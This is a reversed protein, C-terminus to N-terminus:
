ANGGALATGSRSRERRGRRAGRPAGARSRKVAQSLLLGCLVLVASAALQAYFGNTLTAHAGEFAIGATGTDLGKPLDIALTVAVGTLGALAVLRGLRWRGTYVAIVALVVAVVAVPILLYAHAAGADIRDTQPAPAVGSVGLYQPEGVEVGRYTVFQSVGLCAASCVIVGAIGREPTIVRSLRTAASALIGGLAVLNRGAWLIARPVLTVLWDIRPQARRGTAAVRGAAKGLAPGTRAATARLGRASTRRARAAAPRVGAPGRRAASLTRALPKRAPKRKRPKREREPKGARETKEAKAAKAARETERDKWRTERDKSYPTAPHKEGKEVRKEGEEAKKEPQTSQKPELRGLRTSIADRQDKRRDKARRRRRGPLKM